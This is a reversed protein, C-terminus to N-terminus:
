SAFNPFNNKTFIEQISAHNPNIRKGRSSMDKMVEHHLIDLEGTQLAHLTMYIDPDINGEVALDKLEEIKQATSQVQKGQCKGLAFKILGKVKGLMMKRERLWQMQESDITIVGGEQDRFLSELDISVELKESEATGEIEQWSRQLYSEKM